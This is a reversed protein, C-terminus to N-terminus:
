CYCFLLWKDVIVFCCGMGVCRLASTNILSVGWRFATCLVNRIKSHPSLSLMAFLSSHGAFSHTGRFRFCMLFFSFFM